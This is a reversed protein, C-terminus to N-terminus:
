FCLQLIGWIFISQSLIIHHYPYCYQTGPVQAKQLLWSFPNLLWARHSPHNHAKSTLWQITWDRNNVSQWWTAPYNRLPAVFICVRTSVLSDTLIWASRTSVPIFISHCTFDSSGDTQLILPYETTSKILVMQSYKCAGLIHHKECKLKLQVMQQLHFSESQM